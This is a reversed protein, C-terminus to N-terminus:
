EEGVEVVRGVPLVLSSADKFVVPLLQLPLKNGLADFIEVVRGVPLLLPLKSGFTYDYDSHYNTELLITM